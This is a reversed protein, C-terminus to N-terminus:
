RLSMSVHKFADVGAYRASNGLEQEIRLLRNYKALRESRCPAGSKIQGADWAVALDAITSDETEGSRHSIVNAWGAEKTLEVAELTETLSGIQNVKILVANSARSEVGRRIRQSNTTYLDDGVLQVRDGIRASLSQWGEWDDESLGDEISLIPYQDTWDSFYSVFEAATLTAGERELAYVGDSYLETAAVDLMIWCDQGPKYGAKSIAELVLDVAEANSSLSPAFGGEDGVTTSLDLGALIRGLAQYIEAGARVAEGFSDVGVPAAMFEQIDTSNRAHRGGNLINFMPVPLSYSDRDALCRYLPARQSSAAAHAVAMSVALIANAGLNSKGPTGDLELLRRDVDSQDFPSVGKLAPSIVSEINNVAKLVGKGNYRATDGDRLELAEYAGTSAGSPVMALGISGDSLLVEAEVTPNGRSDLVERAKVESIAAAM